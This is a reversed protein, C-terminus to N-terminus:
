IHSIFNDSFCFCLTKCLETIWQFLMCCVRLLSVQSLHAKQLTTHWWKSLQTDVRILQGDSHSWSHFSNIQTSRQARAWPWAACGPSSVRHLTGTGRGHALWVAHTLDKHYTHTAERSHSSGSGDNEFQRVCEVGRVGEEWTFWWASKTSSHKDGSIGKWKRVIIQSFTDIDGISCQSQFLM